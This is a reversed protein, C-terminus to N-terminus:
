RSLRGPTDRDDGSRDRDDGSSDRYGGPPIAITELVFAGTGLAAESEGL